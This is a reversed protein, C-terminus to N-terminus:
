ALGRANGWYRDMDEFSRLVCMANVIWSVTSLQIYDMIPNDVLGDVSEIIKISKKGFFFKGVLKHGSRYVDITIPADVRFEQEGIRVWLAGSSGFIAHLKNDIYKFEGGVHSYSCSDIHIKRVTTDGPFLEIGVKPDIM